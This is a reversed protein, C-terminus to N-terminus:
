CPGRVGRARSRALLAAFDADAFGAAPRPAVIAPTPRTPVAPLPGLRRLAAAYAPTPPAAAPADGGGGRGAEARPRDSAAPQETEARSQPDICERRQGIPVTRKGWRARRIAWESARRRAAALKALDGRSQRIAQWYGRRGVRARHAEGRWRAPALQGVLRVLEVLEPARYWRRLEHASAYLIGTGFRKRYTTQGPPPEHLLVVDRVLKAESEGRALVLRTGRGTYSARDGALTGLLWSLRNGWSSLGRVDCTGGRVAVPVRLAQGTVALAVCLRDASDLGALLERAALDGRQELYGLALDFVAALTDAEVRVHASAPTQRWRIRRSPALAPHPARHGITSPTSTQM